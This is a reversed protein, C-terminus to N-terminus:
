ASVAVAERFTMLVTLVLVIEEGDTGTDVRMGTLLAQVVGPVGLQIQGALQTRLATRWRYVSDMRRPLDAAQGLLVNVTWTMTSAMRGGPGWSITEPPPMVEVAPRSAPAQAMLTHGAWRIADEGAPPTVAQLRTWIATALATDDM